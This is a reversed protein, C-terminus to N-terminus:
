AACEELEYLPMFRSEELDMEPECSPEVSEKGLTIHFDHGQLKPKLGYHMRLRQLAPADVALMWLRVKGKEVYRLEKVEFTFQEGAEALNWIEKGIMEDEYIVSIHAGTKKGGTSVPAFEGQLPLMQWIQEIYADDVDVYVFGNSKLKLRGVADVKAATSLVQADSVTVFDGDAFFPQVPEDSDIYPSFREVAEWGSPASPMQKGLTIHYDHGKLKPSFGYQVRLQELEPAEVAIVWLKKLGDRTNYTFSRVEKIEFTFAQGLEAPIVDEDEVFVSIHAGVSRAATPATRIDGEHDLLPVVETLFANTVDLYVFGNEKQKLTGQASLQLAHELAVPQSEVKHDEKATLTLTTFPVLFLTFCLITKKFLSM